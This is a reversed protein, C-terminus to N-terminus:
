GCCDDAINCHGISDKQKWVIELPRTIWLSADNLSTLNSTIYLKKGSLMRGCDHALSCVANLIFVSVRILYEIRSNSKLRPGAIYMGIVASAHHQPSDEREM